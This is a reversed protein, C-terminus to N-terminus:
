LERSILRLGQGLPAEVLDPAPRVEALAALLGEGSSQPICYDVSLHTKEQFPTNKQLSRWGLEGGLAIYSASDLNRNNM